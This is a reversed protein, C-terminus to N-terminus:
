PNLRSLTIILYMATVGVNLITFTERWVERNVRFKKQKIPEIYVVSNPKLYFAPDGLIDPSDLDMFTITGTAGDIIKITRTNAYETFGKALGVLQLVNIDKNYVMYTGKERVEGLITVRFNVLKVDISVLKYYKFLAENLVTKAEELSLDAIQLKGISPLDINGEEDIEYGSVYLSASNSGNQASLNAARNFMSMSEKDITYIKINLVDGPHLKYAVTVDQKKVQKGQEINKLYSLQKKSICSQLSISLTIFLLLPIIYYQKNMTRTCNM